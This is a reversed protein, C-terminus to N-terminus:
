PSFLGLARQLDVPRARSKSDLETLVDGRHIGAKAAPSDPVIDSVLVGQADKVGFERALEPTLQQIQVGLWGRTVRGKDLLETYIKRAINSQSTFSTYSGAAGIALTSDRLEA